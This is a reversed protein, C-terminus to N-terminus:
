LPSSLFGEPLQPPSASFDSIISLLFSHNSLLPSLIPGYPRYQRLDKLHRGHWTGAVERLAGLTGAHQRGHGSDRSACAGPPGKM